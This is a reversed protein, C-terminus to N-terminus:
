ISLRDLLISGAVAVNLSELSGKQPISIKIDIQNLISKDIGYAESGLILAWKKSEVSIKQHSTGDLTAALLTHGSNKIKSVIDLIDSQFFNSLYFHAGMASRVVKPNYIDVCGNSLFINKIGFWVASRLLTGMNGPESISDLILINGNIVKSINNCKKIPVVAIIGQSNTTQQIKKLDVETIVKYDFNSKIISSKPYKDLFINTTFIKDINHKSQLLEEFARVGEVIFKKHRNRYKSYLLSNLFKIKNKTIM